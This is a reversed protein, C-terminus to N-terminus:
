RRRLDKKTRRARKRARRAAKRYVAKRTDGRNKADKRAKKTMNKVNEAVKAARVDRRWQSRETAVKRYHARSAARANREDRYKQAKEDGNLDTLDRQGGDHFQTRTGIIDRFRM